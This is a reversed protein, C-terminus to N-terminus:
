PTGREKQSLPPSGYVRVQRAELTELHIDTKMLAYERSKLIEDMSEFDQMPVRTGDTVTKCQM